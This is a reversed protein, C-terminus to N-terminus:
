TVLITAGIAISNTIDTISNAVKEEVTAGAATFTPDQVAAKRAADNLAGQMVSRVYSQYALDLGGMLLVLMPLAVIAFEVITAGGTDHALRGLFKRTRM